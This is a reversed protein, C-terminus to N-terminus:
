RGISLAPDRLSDLSGISSDGLHRASGDGASRPGVAAHASRTASSTPATFAALLVAAVPLVPQRFYPM